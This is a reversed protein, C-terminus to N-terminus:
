NSSPTSPSADIHCRLGAALFYPSRASRSPATFPGARRLRFFNEVESTCHPAQPVKPLLNYTTLRSASPHGSWFRRQWIPCGAGSMRVPTARLCGGVQTYKGNQQSPEGAPGPGARATSPHGVPGGAGAPPGGLLWVMSEMGWRFPTHTANPTGTPPPQPAQTV